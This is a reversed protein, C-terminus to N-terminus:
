TDSKCRIGEAPLTLDTLYSIGADDVCKNGQLFATHRTGEFTLLRAKIDRALNVGAQYPTAPDQTTSIVMVTPLGPTQPHHPGGTATVPWFACNDLAPSPPQGNDLFPAVKRYQVDIDRVVNPDKIAPDDACHVAQFVDMETSYSGDASRGYYIDALRMLCSIQSNLAQCDANSRGQALQQLGLNLTPWLSNLYLAQVTGITADTYSMKRGDSIAAPQDILPRVLAQFRAVAQGSDKGL